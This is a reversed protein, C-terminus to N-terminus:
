TSWRTFYDTVILFYKQLQSSYPDTEWIVELGWQQFPCEIFVLQLPFVVRKEREVLNQCQLLKRAYAHSYKFLTPWYYGYRLIKHATTNGSYHGSAPGDHLKSLVNEVDRKEFCRLFVGDFNKRCLM